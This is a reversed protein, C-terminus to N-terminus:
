QGTEFLSSVICIQCRNAPQIRLKCTSCRRLRGILRCATRFARNRLRVKCEQSVRSTLLDAIQGRYWESTHMGVHTGRESTYIPFGTDISEHILTVGTSMDFGYGDFEFGDDSDVVIEELHCSDHLAQYVLRRNQSTIIVGLRFNADNESPEYV